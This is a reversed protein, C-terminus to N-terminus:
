RSGAALKTEGWTTPLKGTPEVNKGIAEPNLEEVDPSYGGDQGRYGGIVYIKGDVQSASLGARRTPIDAIEAWSDTAPKYVEVASLQSGAWGGLVYISGNVASIAYSYRTSPLESNMTTWADAAPDYKEVVRIYSSGDVKTNWGGIAYIKGNVVGGDIFARALPMDEKETWTDIAPDYEEVAAPYLLQNNPGSSMGGIAYIKGNVVCSFIGHRATPMDAKEAWTDTAPDYEEVTTLSRQDGFGVWISGGIAYIKGDVVSTSLYERATPMEVKEKWTDTKPDYEEVKSTVQGAGIGGGIAYIKGDVASTSLNSRATPMNDKTAWAGDQGKPALLLANQPNQPAQGRDNGNEGSIVTTESTRLIDVPFEGIRAVRTEASLASSAPIEMKSLISLHPNLSLVTIIVGAALSLGWPLGAIRPMPNIKIRKVSEVIRFTFGTRLRQEHFATDMMAVMEKKLQARARSLRKLVAMPSIGFAEAIDRSTMGGFYHLFLVEQYAKPLSYLTERVSENLKNVRYSELSPADILNPAQDDIFERDVRKSRTRFCQACCRHAIRYIWFCFSEWKKLSRLDRYAQLFVEQTVDQADRFDRLQAYVFAYIGEKYKDVLMGFAEPKGNLCDQIICGDETRM